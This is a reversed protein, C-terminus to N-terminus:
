GCNSSRMPAVGLGHLELATIHFGDAQAYGVYVRSVNEVTTTNEAASTDSLLTGAADYYNLASIDVGSHDFGTNTVAGFILTQPTDFTINVVVYCTGGAVGYNLTGDACSVGYGDAIVWDGNCLDYGTPGWALCWYSSCTSCDAGALLGAGQSLQALGVAGLKNIFGVIATIVAGHDYTIGTVSAVLAAFNGATVRGDRRIAGFIACSVNLWLTTDAIAAEYESLTGDQVATYIIAFVDAALRVLIFEPIINLVNLGFSLLTLDDQIATVAREMAQLIIQNALYTAISCAFQDPLQDGPNPPLGIIPVADQVCLGFNELWGAVPDWTSGNDFSEQLSCTDTLRVLTQPPLCAEFGSWGDIETWTGGGDTSSQLQCTGSDFRIEYPVACGARGGFMAKLHDVRSLTSAMADDDSVIWCSPNRMQDICGLIYPLWNQNIPPLCVLTGSDPEGDPPIAAAEFSGQQMWNARPMDWAPDYM